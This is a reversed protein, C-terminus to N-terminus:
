YPSLIRVTLISSGFAREINSSSGTPDLLKTLGELDFGFMEKMTNGGDQLVKAADLKLELQYETKYPSNPDTIHIVNWKVDKEGQVISMSGYANHEEKDSPYQINWHFIGPQNASGKEFIIESHYDMSALGHASFVSGEEKNKVMEVNGAMGFIYADEVKKTFDYYGSESIFVTKDSEDEDVSVLTNEKLLL